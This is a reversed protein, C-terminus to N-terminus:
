KAYSELFGCKVCRLTQIEHKATKAVKLGLWLNRVPPGEVWNAVKRRNDTSDLIFGIAM